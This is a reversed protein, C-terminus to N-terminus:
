AEAVEVFSRVDRIGDLESIVRAARGVDDSTPVTGRIIAVGDRVSVEIDTLHSTESNVRLAEDIDEELDLDNDDVEEPLDEVDPDSEEMSPAFGAAVEAGQLDDSPMVPPDSPPTYVLGQEEAEEPNYTQGSSHQTDARYEVAIDEEYEALQSEDVGSSEVPDTDVDHGEPPVIGPIQEDEKAPNFENLADDIGNEDDIENAENPSREDAM